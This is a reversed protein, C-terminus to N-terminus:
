WAVTCLSRYLTCYLPFTDSIFLWPCVTEVEVEYVTGHPFMTRDLELKFGEWKFDSRENRFGGLCKLTKVGHQRCAETNRHPM